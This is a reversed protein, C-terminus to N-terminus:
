KGNTARKKPSTDDHCSDSKRKLNKKQVEEKKNKEKKGKKPDFSKEDAKFIFVSSYFDVSVVLDWFTCLFIYWCNLLILPITLITTNNTFVRKFSSIVFQFINNLYNVEPKTWSSKGTKKNFYYTRGPVSKSKCLCWGDPMSDDENKSSNMMFNHYIFIIWMNFSFTQCIPYTNERHYRSM